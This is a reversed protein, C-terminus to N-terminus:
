LMDIALVDSGPIQRWRDWSGIRHLESVHCDTATPDVDGWSVTLWDGDVQMVEGVDGPRAHILAGELIPEAALVLDGLSWPLPRIGIERLNSPPLTM